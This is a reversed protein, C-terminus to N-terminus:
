RNEEFIFTSPRSACLQLRTILSNRVTLFSECPELLSIILCISSLPCYLKGLEFFELADEKVLNIISELM